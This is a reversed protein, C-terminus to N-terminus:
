IRFLFPGQASQPWINHKDNGAFITNVMGVLEATSYNGSAFITRFLELKEELKKGEFRKLLKPPLVCEHEGSPKKLVKVTQKVGDADEIDTEGVSVSGDDPDAEFSKEEEEEEEQEEEEEEEEEQM